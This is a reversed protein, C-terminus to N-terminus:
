FLENASIRKYEYDYFILTDGDIKYTFSDEMDETMKYVASIKGDSASYTCFTFNINKQTEYMIGDRGFYLQAGTDDQWAGLIAEDIKPESPAKPISSFSELKEMSTTTGDATNTLVVSSRDKSFEYTYDGDLGFLLKTSFIDVGDKQTIDYVGIYGMTGVLLYSNKNGDFCFVFSQLKSGTGGTIKWYGTFMDGPSSLAHLTSLDIEDTFPATSSTQPTDSATTAQSTEAASVTTQAQSVDSASEDASSNKEGCACFMATCCILLIVCSLKKLFKM